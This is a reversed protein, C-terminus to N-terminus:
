SKKKMPITVTEEFRATFFYPILGPILWLLTADAHYSKEMPVDRVPEYGEKAVKIRATGPFGSKSSYTAPTNGALRVQDVWVRAGEPESRIITNQRCGVLLVMVVFFPAFRRM